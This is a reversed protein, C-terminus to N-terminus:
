REKWYDDLDENGDDFGSLEDDEMLNDSLETDAETMLDSRGVVPLKYGLSNICEQCMELFEMTFGHRLTLEYDTLAANCCLCRAM